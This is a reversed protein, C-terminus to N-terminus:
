LDLKRLARDELRREGRDSGVAREGLQDPIPQGVTIFDASGGGAGGADRLALLGAGAVTKRRRVGESCGHVDMTM